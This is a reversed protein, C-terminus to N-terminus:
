KKINLPDHDSIKVTDSNLNYYTCLSNEKLLDYVLKCGECCFSKEDFNITESKCSDGCHYCEVIQSKDLQYKKQNM